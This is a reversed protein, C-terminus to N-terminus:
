LMVEQLTVYWSWSGDAGTVRALPVPVGGAVSPTKSGVSSGFSVYRRVKEAVALPPPVCIRVVLMM